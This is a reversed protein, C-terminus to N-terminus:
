QSIDECISHIVSSIDDPMMSAIEKLSETKVSAHEIVPRQLESNLKDRMAKINQIAEYHVPNADPQQAKNVAKKGM